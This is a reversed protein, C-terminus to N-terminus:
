IMIDADPFNRQIWDVIQELPNWAYVHRLSGDKRAPEDKTFYSYKLRWGDRYGRDIRKLEEDSMEEFERIKPIISYVMKTLLCHQQINGNLM